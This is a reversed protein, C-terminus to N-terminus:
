SMANLTIRLSNHYKANEPELELAKRTEKEAEEYKMKALQAKTIIGNEGFLTSITIGALILLVIITVVLAILTIGKINEKKQLKFKNM